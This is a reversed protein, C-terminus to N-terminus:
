KLELILVRDRLLFYRSICDVKLEFINIGEIFGLFYATKNDFLYAKFKEFKFNTDM